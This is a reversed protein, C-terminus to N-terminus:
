SFYSVFHFSIHFYSIKFFSKKRVEKLVMGLYKLKSLDDYSPDNEGLVQVIEDYLRKQVDPRQSILYIAWLLATATTDHGEFLFTNVEDRIEKLSLPQQTEEDRADLLIQLFDQYREQTTEKSNAAVEDMRRKIVSDAKSHLIRVANRYRVDSPTFKWLFDPLFIWYLRRLMERSADLTANLYQKEDPQGELRFGFACRAIIDLTLFTLPDMLQIEQEGRAIRKNFDDILNRTCDKYQEVFARLIKFHFAPTIMKRKRKWM